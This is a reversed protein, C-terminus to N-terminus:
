RKEGENRAAQEGEKAGLGTIPAALAMIFACLREAEAKTMDRPIVIQVEYDPRLPFPLCLSSETATGYSM